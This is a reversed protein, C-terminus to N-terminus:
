GSSTLLLSGAETTFVFFTELCQWIDGPDFKSGTLFLQELTFGGCNGAYNIDIYVCCQLFGVSLLIVTPQLLRTRPPLPSM